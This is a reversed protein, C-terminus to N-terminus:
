WNGIDDDGGARGDPGWSLLDYDRGDIGPSQYVYPNRWPDLPVRRRLYPGKWGPGAGDSSQLASLGESTTPYRGCDYEYADLATGLNEVELRAAQIRAEQTRGTLRPLAVSALVGLIAVVVMIEVLTFGGQGRRM